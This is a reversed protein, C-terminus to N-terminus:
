KRRCAAPPNAVQLAQGMGDAGVASVSCTVSSETLPIRLRFKGRRGAVVDALSVGSVSDVITITEGPSAGGGAISLLGRKATWRARSISPIKLDPAALSITFDATASEVPVGDDFVSFQVVFDGVTGTTPTWILEASGDGYDIFEAGMPVGTAEFFVNNGDPDHATLRLLITDGDRTMGVPDLVPPRNVDGITLTFTETDSASPVASDYVTCTVRYNGAEDFGALGSLQATGDGADVVDMGPPLGLCEFSLSDGNPDSASLGILVLEGEQASRDGIPDLVPPQNVAGVTIVFEEADSEMPIGADTVTVTVTVSGVDTASPSWQLEGSGDGADTLVAGLPLGASGFSLADGDPDDAMLPVRLAEGVAVTQAGIPMLVPPRNVNGVSIMIQEMVSEPPSGTDTAKFTVPYNGAQDFTPMWVLRGAGSGLEEFVAGTPLGAAELFLGDGDPDSAFIDLSLLGDESMMQDGIPQLVPPSNSAPPCFADLDGNKYATFLATRDAGPDAPNHCTSCDGNYPMSPTRGNVTCYQDVQEGFFQFAFANTSSMIMAAVFTAGSLLQWRKRRQMIFRELDVRGQIPRVITQM